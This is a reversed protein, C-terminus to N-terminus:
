LLHAKTNDTYSYVKPFATIKVGSKVPSFNNQMYYVVMGGSAGEVGLGAAQPVQRFIHAFINRDERNPYYENIAAM